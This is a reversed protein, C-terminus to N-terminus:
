ASGTESWDLCGRNSGHWVRDIFKAHQGDAFEKEKAETEKARKPFLLTQFHGKATKKEKAAM